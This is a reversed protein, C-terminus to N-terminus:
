GSKTQSVKELMKRAHNSELYHKFMGEHRAKAAAVAAPGESECNIPVVMRNTYRTRVEERLATFPGSAINDTLHLIFAIRKQSSWTSNILGSLVEVAKNYM